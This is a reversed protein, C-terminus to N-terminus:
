SWARGELPALDTYASLDYKLFYRKMERTHFHQDETPSILALGKNQIGCRLRLMLTMQAVLTVSTM